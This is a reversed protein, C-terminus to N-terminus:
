RARAVVSALNSWLRARRFLSDAAAEDAYSWVSDATRQAAFSARVLSDLAAMGVRREPEVHLVRGGVFSNTAVLCTSREAIDKVDRRSLAKLYEEASKRIERVDPAERSCDALLLLALSALALVGAANRASSRM